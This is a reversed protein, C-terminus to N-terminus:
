REIKVDLYEGNKTAETFVKLADERESRAGRLHKMSFTLTKAGVKRTPPATVTVRKAFTSFIEIWEAKIADGMNKHSRLEEPTDGWYFSIWGSASGPTRSMFVDRDKPWLLPFFEEIVVPKGAYATRLILEQQPLNNTKEDGSPYLHLAIFDLFPALKHPSFSSYPDEFPLSWSTMGVTVMHRKDHKRISEKMRKVWDVAWDECFFVHDLYRQGGDWNGQGFPVWDEPGSLGPNEWTEGKRGFDPWAKKLNGADGYRKHVWADWAPSVHRLHYNVFHYGNPGGFPPSVLEETDEYNIKPENQLDYCFVAPEDAMRGAIASWFATEAQIRGEDDLARYWAPIKEEVYNGLGTIDLYLGLGRALQGLKVLRDLEASNAEDKSKMFRSFQLHIRVVNFGMQKIEGFDEEVKKWETEWYDEILRERGDHEHNVGVPVFPKKSESLRFSWSDPSTEIFEPRVPAAHIAVGIYIFCVSAFAM